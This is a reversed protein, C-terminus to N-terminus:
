DHASNVKKREQAEKYIRDAFAVDDDSWSLEGVFLLIQNCDKNLYYTYNYIEPYAENRKHRFKYNVKWGYMCSDQKEVLPLISDVLIQRKQDVDYRESIAKSWKMLGTYDTLKNYYPYGRYSKLSRYAEIDTKRKLEVVSDAKRIEKILDQILSDGLYDLRLRSIEIGIPEYNDYNDLTNFLDKKILELAKDKYPNDERSICGTLLCPFLFIALYNLGKM